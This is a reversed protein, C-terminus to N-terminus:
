KQSAKSLQKALRSKLRDAKGAHITSAKAAKDVEKYAKPMAASAAKLDGAAIAKRVAKFADKYAERHKRNKATRRVDVRIKKIASSRDAM